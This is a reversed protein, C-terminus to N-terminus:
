RKYQLKETLYQAAVVVNNVFCFGSGGNCLAHHGPPRILAVGARISGNSINEALSLICSVCKLIANATQDNFYWDVKETINERNLINNIYEMGHVKEIWSRENFKM